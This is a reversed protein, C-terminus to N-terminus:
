DGVYKGTNIDVGADDVKSIWGLAESTNPFQNIFINKIENAIDRHEKQTNEETRLNIYHVWSRVTGNMYMTTQTTLPLVMRASEKAVGAEILEEYLKVGFDLHQSIAKSAPVNKYNDTLTPDVVDTSSQRNKEAQQRLELPELEQAVSYRQSFEQFSFSRHRLIQAAIARSTKIEVCMSALEFPSWHKHKILFKILKPATEM